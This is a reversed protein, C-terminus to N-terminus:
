RRRTGLNPIQSKMMEIRDREEKLALGFLVDFEFIALASSESYSVGHKALLFQAQVFDALKYNDFLNFM